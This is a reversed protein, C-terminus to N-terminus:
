VSAQIELIDDAVEFGLAMSVPPQGPWVQMQINVISRLGDVATVEVTCGRFQNHERVVARDGVHFRCIRGASQRLM